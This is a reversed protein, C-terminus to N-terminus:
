CCTYILSKKLLFGHKQPFFQPNKSQKRPVFTSCQHTFLTHIILIIILVFWVSIYTQKKWFYNLMYFWNKERFYPKKGNTKPNTSNLGLLCVHYWFNITTYQPCRCSRFLFTWLNSISIIIFVFIVIKNKAPIESSQPVYVLSTTQPYLVYTTLLM